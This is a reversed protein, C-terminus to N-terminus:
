VLTKGGRQCGCARCVPCIMWKFAKSSCEECIVTFREDVPTDCRWCHDLADGKRKRQRTHEEQPKHGELRVALYGSMKNLWRIDEASFLDPADRYLANLRDQTARAKAEVKPSSRASIVLQRFAEIEAEVDEKAIKPVATKM